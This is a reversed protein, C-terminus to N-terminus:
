NKISSSKLNLYKNKYKMYKIANSPSPCIINCNTKSLIINNTNIIEHLQILREKENINKVYDPNKNFLFYRPKFPQNKNCEFDIIDNFGYMKIIRIITDKMFYNNQISISPIYDEILYFYIEMFKFFSLDDICEVNHDKIFLFGDDNLKDYLQFLIKDINNLSIHHLVM